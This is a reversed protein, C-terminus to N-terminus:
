KGPASESKSPGSGSKLPAAGPSNVPPSLQPQQGAGAERRGGSNSGSTSHKPPPASTERQRDASQRTESQPADMRRSPEARPPAPAERQTDPPQRTGEDRPARSDRDRDKESLPRAATRETRQYFQRADAFFERDHISNWKDIALHPARRLNELTVGLVFYDAGQREDFGIQFADFPVIVYDGSWGSIDPAIAFFLTPCGGEYDVVFDKVTGVRERDRGWITMGILERGRILRGERGRQTRVSEIREGANSPGGDGAAPSAPTVEQQLSPTPQTAPTAQPVPVAQPAVPQAPTPADGRRIERRSQADACTAISLWAIFAGCLLAKTFFNSQM